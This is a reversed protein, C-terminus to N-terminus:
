NAVDPAELTVIVDRKMIVVESESSIWINEDEKHQVFIGVVNHDYHAKAEKLSPYVELEGYEDDMLIFVDVVSSIMTVKVGKISL